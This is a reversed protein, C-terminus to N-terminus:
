TKAGYKYTQQVTELRIAEIALQSVAATKDSNDDGLWRVRRIPVTEFRM